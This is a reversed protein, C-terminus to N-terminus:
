FARITIFDYSTVGSMPPQQAEFLCLGKQGTLSINRNSEELM